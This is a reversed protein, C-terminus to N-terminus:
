EKLLIRAAYSKLSFVTQSRMKERHENIFNDIAIKTNDIVFIQSVELKKDKAKLSYIDAFTINDDLEVSAVINDQFFHTEYFHDYFKITSDQYMNTEIGLEEKIGRKLCHKMNVVGNIKDTESITETASVYIWETGNSYTANKSRKTLIIQNTNKLVVIISLGFSTRIFNMEPTNLKEANFNTLEKQLINEIVKHTFYDTEFFDINLIPNEIADNTRSFADARLIGFLTSNFYNGETRNIFQSLMNRRSEELIIAMDEQHNGLLNALLNVIKSNKNVCENESIVIKKEPIVKTIINDAKCYPFIEELVIVDNYKDSKLAEIRKKTRRRNLSLIFQRKLPPFIAIIITVAIGIIGLLIEKEM